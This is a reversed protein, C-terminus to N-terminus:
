KYIWRHLCVGMYTYSKTYERIHDVAGNSQSRMLAYVFASAVLRGTSIHNIHAGKAITPPLFCIYAYIYVYMCVYSAQKGVTDVLLRNM